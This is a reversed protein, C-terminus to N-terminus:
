IYKVAEKFTVRSMRDKNQDVFRRVAYPETKSYARLAWGIAKCIWFGTEHLRSECFEFLMKADTESKFQLQALIASRRLWVDDDKIWARLTMKMEDPYRRLLSGILHAALEDVYDWWAGTQIMMKYLSLMELVQFKKYRRALTVAMYREERFDADWLERIIRKYENQTSVPVQKIIQSFIKKREGAKVGRFPLESKMYAQMPVANDENGTSELTQRILTTLQHM